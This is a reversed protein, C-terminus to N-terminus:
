PRSQISGCTYTCETCNLRTYIYICTYLITYSQSLTFNLKPGFKYFPSTQLTGIYSFRVSRTTVSTYLIYETYVPTVKEPYRFSRIAALDSHHQAPLPPTRLNKVTPVYNDRWVGFLM